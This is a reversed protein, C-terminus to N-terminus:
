NGPRQTTGRGSVTEEERQRVLEEENKSRYSLHSKNLFSKRSGKLVLHTRGNICM